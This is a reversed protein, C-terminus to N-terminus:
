QKAICLESSQLYINICSLHLYAWNKWDYEAMKMHVPLLSIFPIELHNQEANTNSAVMSFHIFFLDRLLNYCLMEIFISGFDPREM